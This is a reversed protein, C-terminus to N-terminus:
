TLDSIIKDKKKYDKYLREHFPDQNQIAQSIKNIKPTRSKRTNIEQKNVQM